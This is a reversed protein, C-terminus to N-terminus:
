GASLVADNIDDRLANTFSSVTPFVASLSLDESVEMPDVADRRDWVELFNYLQKQEKLSLGAGGVGLVFKQLACLRTTNFRGSRSNKRRELIPVSRAADDLVEYLCFVRTALSQYQYEVDMSGNAAGDQSVGTLELLPYLQARIAADYSGTNDAVLTSVGSIPADTPLADPPDPGSGDGPEAQEVPRRHVGVILNLRRRARPHM